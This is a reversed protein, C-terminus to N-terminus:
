LWEATSWCDRKLISLLLFLSKFLFFPISLFTNVMKFWNVFFGYSFVIYFYDLITIFFLSYNHFQLSFRTKQILLSNKLLKHTFIYTTFYSLIWTTTIKHSSLIMGNYRRNFYFVTHIECWGTQNKVHFSEVLIVITIIKNM